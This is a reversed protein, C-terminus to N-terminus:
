PAKTFLMVSQPHFEIGGMKLVNRRDRELVAWTRYFIIDGYKMILPHIPLRGLHGGQNSVLLKDGDIRVQYYSGGYLSYHLVSREVNVRCLGEEFRVFVRELPAITGFSARKSRFVYDLYTNVDQETYRLAPPRHRIAAAEMDLNIRAPRLSIKVRPLVDPPLIMQIVAALACAGLIVKCLKFFARKV